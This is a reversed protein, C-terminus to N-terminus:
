RVKIGLGILGAMRQLSFKILKHIFTILNSLIFKSLYCGAHEYKAILYDNLSILCDSVNTWIARFIIFYLCEIKSTLPVSFIKFTM